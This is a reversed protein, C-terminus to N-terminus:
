DCTNIVSMCKMMRMLCPRAGVSIPGSSLESQHLILWGPLVVLTHVVILANIRARISGEPSNEEAALLTVSVSRGGIDQYGLTAVRVTNAGKASTLQKSLLLKAESSGIAACPLSNKQPIQKRHTSKEQSNKSIFDGM